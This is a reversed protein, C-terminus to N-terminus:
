TKWFFRHGEKKDRTCCVRGLAYEKVFPLFCLAHLEESHMNRWSGKVEEREPGVVDGFM